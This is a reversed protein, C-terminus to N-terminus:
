AAVIEPDVQPIQVDLVLTKVNDIDLGCVHLLQRFDDRGGFEVGGAAVPEHVCARLSRDLQRIHALPSQTVLM